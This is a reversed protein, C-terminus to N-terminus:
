AQADADRQALLSALTPRNGALRGQGPLVIATVNIGAGCIQGLAAGIPAALRGAVQERMFDTPLGLLAWGSVPDLELLVAYRLVRTYDDAPLGIRLHVLAAQWTRGCDAENLGTTTAPAAPEPAPEPAPASPPPLDPAAPGTAPTVPLAQETGAVGSSRRRRLLSTFYAGPKSVKGRAQARCTAEIAWRYTDVGNEALCQRHWELSHGDGLMQTGWRILAEADGPAPIGNSAPLAAPAVNVNENKSENVTSRDVNVLVAGALGGQASEMGAAAGSEASERGPDHPASDKAGAGLGSQASEEGGSWASEGARNNGTAPLQGSSASDRGADEKHIGADQGCSASDRAPMSRDTAGQGSSASGGPAPMAGPVVPQGCPASAAPEPPAGPPTTDQGSSASSGPPLLGPQHAAPERRRVYSNPRTLRVTADVNGLGRSDISVQYARRMIAALRTLETDPGLPALRQTLWAVHKRTWSDADFVLYELLALSPLLLGRATRYLKQKGRPTEVEEVQLLGTTQLLNTYRAITDQSTDLYAALANQTCHAWGYYPHGPTAEEFSHLAVLLGIGTPKLLPGWERILVPTLEGAVSEPRPAPSEQAHPSGTPEAAIPAPPPRLIARPKSDMKRHGRIRCLHRSRGAYVALEEEIL